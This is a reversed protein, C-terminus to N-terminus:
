REWCVFANPFGVYFIKQDGQTNQIKQVLSNRQGIM